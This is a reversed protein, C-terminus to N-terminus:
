AIREELLCRVCTSKIRVVKNCWKPCSESFLVRRAIDINVHEILEANKQVYFDQRLSDTGCPKIYSFVIIINLMPNIFTDKAVDNDINHTM